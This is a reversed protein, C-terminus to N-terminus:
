KEDLRIPQKILEKLVKVQSDRLMATARDEAPTFGKGYFVMRDEEMAQTQVAQLIPRMLVTNIAIFGAMLVIMNGILLAFRIPRGNLKRYRRVLTIVATVMFWIFYAVLVIFSWFWAKQCPLQNRYLVYSFIMWVVLPIAVAFLLLKLYARGPLVMLYAGRHRFAFIVALIAILIVVVGELALLTVSSFVAMTFKREPWLANRTLDNGLAIPSLLVRAVIGGDVKVLESQSKAMERIGLFPARAEACQRELEVAAPEYGAHRLLKPLEGEAPQKAIAGCVLQSIYSLDDSQALLLAERKWGNLFEAARPDKDKLLLEAYWLAERSDARLMALHPLLLSATHSLQLLWGCVTGDTPILEGAPTYMEALWLRMYPKRTGELYYQMAQDLLKRDKVTYVQSHTDGDHDVDVAEKFLDHSLMFYFFANDPEAAIAAKLEDELQPANEEYLLNIYMMRRAMTQDREFATKADALSPRRSMLKECQEDTLVPRGAVRMAFNFRATYRADTTPVNSILNSSIVIGGLTDRSVCFFVSALVAPVILSKVALKFRSRWKLRNFNSLLLEQAVPEPDGFRKVAEDEGVEAASCALHDNVENEIETQLEVDRVFPAACRRAIENLRNM